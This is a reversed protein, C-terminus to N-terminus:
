KENGKIEQLLIKYIAELRKKTLTDYIYILAENEKKGHFSEFFENTTGVYVKEQFDDFQDGTIDVILGECQLWAHSSKGNKDHNMREGSYYDFTVGTKTYLYTGLLISSDGCAGHPFSDFPIGLDSKVKEIALRFERSLMKIRVSPENMKM